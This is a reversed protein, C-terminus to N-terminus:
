QASIRHWPITKIANCLLVRIICCDYLNPAITKKINIKNWKNIRSHGTKTAFCLVKSAAHPIYSGSWPNCGPGRCQSHLTTAVPGSPFDKPAITIGDQIDAFHPMFCDLNLHLLWSSFGPLRVVPVSNEINIMVETWNLQEPMNRESKAVGHVKASWAERDMVLERLKSLNMDMSDTIGDLWRRRQWGRRRRGEIKRLMLTKELSDTRRMLHGFYWLKLKLTLGELLWQPSLSSKAWPCANTQKNCTLKYIEGVLGKLPAWLNEM